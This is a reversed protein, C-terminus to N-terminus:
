NKKSKKRDGKKHMAAIAAAEAGADFSPNAKIPVPANIESRWKELLARLEAVKEPMSAALNNSEGIDAELDYLEFGGDEFYEHLKFNGARVISCPRSRFLPDRQESTVAYSQLYAPFHWFLPRAAFKAAAKEKGTLIPLLSLGDTPQNNPVKAGALECFTPYIDVGIM